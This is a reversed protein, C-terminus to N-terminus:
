EGIAELSAIAADIDELTNRLVCDRCSNRCHDGCNEPMHAYAVNVRIGRLAELAGSERYALLEKAMHEVEYDLPCCDIDHQCVSALHKLREKTIREAM